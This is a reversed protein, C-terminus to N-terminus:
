DGLARLVNKDLATVPWGDKNWVVTGITLNVPGGNDDKSRDVWSESVMYTQGDPGFFLQAHAVGQVGEKWETLRSGGNGSLMSNGDMDVYPGELKESRSVSWYYTGKSLGGRAVFLYYYDGHKVLYPAELEGKGEALHVPTANPDAFKGTNPNLEKMYVGTWYSGYILYPTGDDDIFVNPDIANFDTATQKNGYKDKSDYSRVVLGLDKWDNKAPDDSVAVGIASNRSGSSSSCYYLFFKDGIKYCGPAWIGTVGNDNEAVIDKLWAPRSPLAYKGEIFSWNVMDTSTKVAISGSMNYNYYVGNHYIIEPCSATGIYDGSLVLMRPYEGDGDSVKKFAWTQTNEGNYEEAQEAYDANKASVATAYWSSFVNQIVCNDISGDVTYVNWNKAQDNTGDLCASLKKEKKISEPNRISMYLGSAMNEFSYTGDANKHARWMQSLHRGYADLKVMANDETGFNQVTMAQKEFKDQNNTSIRYLAGDELEAATLDKGNMDGSGDTTDTSSEAASDGTASQAGTDAPDGACGVLMASAVFLMTALLLLKKM